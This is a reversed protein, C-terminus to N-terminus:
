TDGFWARGRGQFRLQSGHFQQEKLVILHDTERAIKFCTCLKTAESRKEVAKRRGCAPAVRRAHVRANSSCIQAFAREVMWPM